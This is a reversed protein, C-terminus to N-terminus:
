LYGWRPRAKRHDRVDGGTRLGATHENSRKGLCWTGARVRKRVRPGPSPPRRRPRLPRRDLLPTGDARRVERRTPRGQRSAAPYGEREHHGPRDLQHPRCVHA